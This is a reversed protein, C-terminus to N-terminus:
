PYEPYRRAQIVGPAPPALLLNLADLLVQRQLERQGARGFAQGLKFGVPNLARPPRMPKSEEPEVTVLVTPIGRM